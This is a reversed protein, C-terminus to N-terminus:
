TNDDILLSFQERSQPFNKFSYRYLCILKTYPNSLKDSGGIKYIRSLKSKKSKNNNLESDKNEANSNNNKEENNNNKLSLFAYDKKMKPMLTSIKIFPM